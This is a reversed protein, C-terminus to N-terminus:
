PAYHDIAFNPLPSPPTTSPSRSGKTRTRTQKRSHRGRQYRSIRMALQDRALGPAGTTGFCYAAEIDDSVTTSGLFRSHRGAIVWCSFFPGTSDLFHCPRDSLNALHHASVPGFVDHVDVAPCGSRSCYGSQFFSTVDHCGPCSLSLAIPLLVVIATCVLRSVWFLSRKRLPRVPSKHGISELCLSRGGAGRRHAWNAPIGGVGTAVAPELNGPSPTNRSLM